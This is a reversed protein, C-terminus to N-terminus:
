GKFVKKYFNNQPANKSMKIILNYIEKLYNDSNSPVKTIIKKYRTVVEKNKNLTYKPIFATFTYINKNTKKDKELEVAIKSFYDYEEINKRAINLKKFKNKEIAYDAVEKLTDTNLFKAGFHAVNNMKQPHINTTNM